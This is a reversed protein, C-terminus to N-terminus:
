LRASILLFVIKLTFSIHMGIDRRRNKGRKIDPPFRIALAAPNRRVIRVLALKAVKENRVPANHTTAPQPPFPPPPIPVVGGGGIGSKLRDKELAPRVTAAPEEDVEETVTVPDLPNVEGTVILTV